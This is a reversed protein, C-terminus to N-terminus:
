KSTLELGILDALQEPSFQAEPAKVPAKLLAPTESIEVTQPLATNISVNANSVKRFEMGLLSAKQEPSYETGSVEEMSSIAEPLESVVVTQPLVVNIDMKKSNTDNAMLNTASFAVALVMLKVINKM